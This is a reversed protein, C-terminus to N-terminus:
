RFFDTYIEPMLKKLVNRFGDTRIRNDKTLRVFAKWKDEIEKVVAFLASKRQVRRKEAIEKIEILMDILISEVEEKTPNKKYREYYEKAKM